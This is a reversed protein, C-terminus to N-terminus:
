EYRYRCSYPNCLINAQIEIPEKTLNGRLLVQGRQVQRNDPSLQLGVAAVLIGDWGLETLTASVPMGFSAIDLKKILDTPITGKGSCWGYCESFEPRCLRSVTTQNEVVNLPLCAARLYVHFLPLRLYEPVNISQYTLYGSSLRKITGHKERTSPPPPLRSFNGGDQFHRSTWGAPQHPSLLYSM